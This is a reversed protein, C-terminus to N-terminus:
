FVQTQPSYDVGLTCSQSHNHGELNHAFSFIMRNYFHNFKTRSFQLLTWTHIVKYKFIHAYAFINLYM